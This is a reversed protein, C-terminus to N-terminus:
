GMLERAPDWTGDGLFQRVRAGLSVGCLQQLATDGADEHNATNLFRVIQKPYDSMLNRFLVQALHYSLETGEDPLFFSGGSWFAQITEENWYARHRRVMNQDVYFYSSDVVLDEIVQTVGENLWLPLPLHRLLNHNLEHAITREYQDGYALCIVFHGYGVDLFMGGSLGFEGEDPYFDTIYDYYDEVDAFAIVVHKGYGEDRAVDVLTRLITCRAHECSQLLRRSLRTDDKTLLLFEDSETVTYHNPLSKRLQGLWDRALATWTEDFRDDSVNAAVWDSVVAWDPRMFRHGKSLSNPICTLSIEM